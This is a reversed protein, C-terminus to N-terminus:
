VNATRGQSNREFDADRVCTQMQLLFTRAVTTLDPHEDAM